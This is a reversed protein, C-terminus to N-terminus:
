TYSNRFIYEFINFDDNTMRKLKADKLEKNFTKNISSFM